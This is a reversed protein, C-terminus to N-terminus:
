PFARELRRMPYAAAIIEADLCMRCVLDLALQDARVDWLKREANRDAHGCFRETVRHDDAINRRPEIAQGPASPV